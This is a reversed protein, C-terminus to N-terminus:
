QVFGIHKGKSDLVKYGKGQVYDGVTSGAPAGEVKSIDPKATKAAGSTDTKPKPANRYFGAEASDRAKAEMEEATKTGKLRDNDVAERYVATNKLLKVADNGARGAAEDRSRWDGAEAVAGRGAVAEMIGALGSSKNKQYLDLAGAAVQEDSWDPHEAKVRAGFIKVGEAQDSPKPITAPRFLQPKAARAAQALSTLGASRSATEAKYADIKNKEANQEYMDAEKLLGMKEARRAKSLNINMETFSQDARRKAALAPAYAGAFASGAAGIGRMPDNGQLMAGAAQLAALGKGESLAGENEGRMKSIQSEIDTYMKDGGITNQLRGLRDITAAEMQANNRLSINSRNKNGRMQGLYEQLIENYADRDGKSETEGGGYKDVYEDALVRLGSPTEVFGDEDAEGGGGFAVIGGHAMNYAGALGSKESARTALELKAAQLEAASSPHQVIQQLQEDSLKAVAATMANPDDMSNIDGGDAYSQVSGGNAKSLQNIGYAGMGLAGVNQIMSPPAQYMQATSQQGLPLGRVLDSMFGIQKYPYNQQNLFDQYGLDLGRQAQAQQQGGYQNQLQNIAVDQTLGQRFQNAAQDYAAQSGQAQIQNMQQGLNRERESRMIADRGGGFAGSQTAQAQQQTGMIGSQRAAEQKQVDVVNQMYPSMYSGINKQFAEPGGSLNSAATQAQEQMPSFGAIRPQTYTQYPNKNIDTLNAANALTDKAYGKAWDPLETSSVTTNSPTSSGGGGLVLGGDAKRYTASDGLPEGM